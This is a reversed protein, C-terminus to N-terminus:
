AGSIDIHEDIKDTWVVASPGALYMAVLMAEQVEERTAGNAVAAEIHTELCIESRLLCAIAVAILEKVKTPLAGNKFVEVKLRYLARIVEPKQKSLLELSM